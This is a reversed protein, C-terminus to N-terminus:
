WERAAVVEGTCDGWGVGSDAPGAVATMRVVDGDQLFSRTTGDMLSVPQTGGETSELLCGHHGKGGAESVTGTALIDGTRLPAGASVIHAVMQRVSWYLSSVNATGITTANKGPTGIEVSMQVDYTTRSPDALWPQVPTSNAQPVTEMIFPALADVTVIWPSITTGLNKGNCPGLPMM